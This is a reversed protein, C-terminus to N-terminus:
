EFYKKLLDLFNNPSKFHHDGDILYKGDVYGEEDLYNKYIDILKVDIKNMESIILEEFMNRVIFRQRETGYDFSRMRKSELVCNTRIPGNPLIYHIKNSPYKEKIKKLVDVFRNVLQTLQEINTRKKLKSNRIIGVRSDIEGIFFCIDDGDFIPFSNLIREYDINIFRNISLSHFTAPNIITKKTSFRDADYNFGFSMFHNTHSDGIIWTNKKDFDSGLSRKNINTASTKIFKEFIVENTETDVIKFILDNNYLSEFKHPNEDSIYYNVNKVVETTKGISMSRTKTLNEYLFFDVKRSTEGLYQFDIRIFQKEEELFKHEYKKILFM